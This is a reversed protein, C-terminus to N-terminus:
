VNFKYPSGQRDLLQISPISNVVFIRYDPEQAVPNNFLDTFIFFYFGVRNDVTQNAEVSSGFLKNKMKMFSINGFLYFVFVDIFFHYLHINNTLVSYTQATFKNRNFNFM